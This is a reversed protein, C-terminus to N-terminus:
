IKRRIKNSTMDNKREASWEIPDIKQMTNILHPLLICFICIDFLGLARTRTNVCACEVIFTLEPPLFLSGPYAFTATIQIVFLSSSVFLSITFFSSSYLFVMRFLARLLLLLLFFLLSTSHLSFGHKSSALFLCVNLLLSCVNNSHLSFLVCFVACLLASLACVCM